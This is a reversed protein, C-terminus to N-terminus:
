RYGDGEERIRQPFLKQALILSAPEEPWSFGSNKKYNLDLRSYLSNHQIYYAAHSLWLCVMDM